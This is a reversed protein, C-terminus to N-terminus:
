RTRELLLNVSLPTQTNRIRFEVYIDVANQDPTYTVLVDIVNVRPEFNNITDIISKQLMVTTLSSVNEFLMSNVQSGIYSRFPREFNRTLILNKISQKVANEDIKTTVDDTAPHRFFNLDLDTFTRTNRSM